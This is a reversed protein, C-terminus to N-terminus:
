RDSREQELRERGRRRIDEFFADLEEESRLVVGEGRDLQRLAINVAERLEDITWDGDTEM